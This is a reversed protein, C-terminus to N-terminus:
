SEKRENHNGQCHQHSQDIPGIVLLFSWNQRITKTRQRYDQAKIPHKSQRLDLLRRFINKDPYFSHKYCENIPEKKSPRINKQILQCDQIIQITKSCRENRRHILNQTGFLADLKKSTNIDGKQEFHFKM